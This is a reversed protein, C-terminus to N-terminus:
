HHAQDQGSRQIIIKALEDFQEQADMDMLQVPDSVTHLRLLEPHAGILDKGSEGANLSKLEGFLFSPFIVPNGRRGGSSLALITGPVYADMMGCLTEKTLLPQDCVCFMCADADGLARLGMRISRSVGLEPKSNIVGAFGYQAAIHALENDGAVIVRKEFRRVPLSQLIYELCTKGAIQAKLKGGGFRTGSGAALLICGTKM